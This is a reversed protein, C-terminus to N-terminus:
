AAGDGDADAGDLATRFLADFRGGAARLAAEPGIEAVRGAEMVLVRDAHQLTALRHAITLMTRGPRLLGLSKQVLAETEADLHATPEDLLVLPADRYFARALGLRQVEGGSLAHGGDGVMTDFAHPLAAIREAIAAARAARLIRARDPAPDGLAINDAVSGAFLRPRQPIYAIRRRLAALDIEEMAVGDILIKGATPVVFGMLLALLSSKGAGSAGVIALTEGAAVEFEVGDLARRGGPFVLGVDCFRLAVGASGPADGTTAHSAETATAPRALDPLNEFAVLREAAGLAEMRAHYATGMARLPLYFEPALLLVFLGHQYTTEGWLLRFGVLVAVLAISVTAFFELTLASLFALRLVAMTERRYGDATEAVARVMRRGANYARLTPLGQIADLVHGSMRQLHRWQRQNLAEAGKGILVMFFPILPATVVFVLASLWDLPAVVALIGLPIVVAQTVAPLYRSFFPEVGRAGDAIVAVIEGSPREAVGAPGARDLKALLSKRLAPVVRMAASFGLRDAAYATAARLLVVLALLAFPTALTDAARHEILGAHLITAVLWAQAVIAVGGLLAAAMALRLERRALPRLRRLCAADASKESM